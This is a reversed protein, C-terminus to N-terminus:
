RVPPLDWRVRPGELCSEIGWTSTRSPSSRRHFLAESDPFYLWNDEQFLVLDIVTHARAHTRARARTERTKQAYKRLGRLEKMSNNNPEERTLVNTERRNGAARKAKQLSKIKMGPTFIIMKQFNSTIKIKQHDEMTPKQSKFQGM